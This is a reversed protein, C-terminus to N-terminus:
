MLHAWRDLICPSFCWFSCGPSTLQNCCISLQLVEQVARRIATSSIPNEVVDEVVSFRDSYKHLPGDQVMTSTVTELCLLVCILFLIM